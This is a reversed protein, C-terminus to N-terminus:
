ERSEGNVAERERRRQERYAARKKENRKKLPHFWDVKSETGNLLRKINPYHKFIIYSCAVVILINELIHDSMFFSLIIAIVCAGISAISVYNTLFGIIVWCSIAIVSLLPQLFILVGAATAVGKGGKFHLFISYTHGLIAVAGCVVAGVTGFTLMGLWTAAVGKLADAFLVLFGLKFGLVRVTNTAGVNGSGHEMINIGAFSKGVLYAFPIAGLFYSAIIALIFLFVTM